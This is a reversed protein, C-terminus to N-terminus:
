AKKARGADARKGYNEVQERALDRVNYLMALDFVEIELKVGREPM